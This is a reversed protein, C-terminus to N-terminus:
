LGLEDPDDTYFDDYDDQRLKRVSIVEEPTPMRDETVSNGLIKKGLNVLAIAGEVGNIAAPLAEIVMMMIAIATGM